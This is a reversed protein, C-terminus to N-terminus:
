LKPTIAIGKYHICNRDENIEFDTFYINKYDAILDHYLENSIEMEDLLYYNHETMQTIILDLKEIPSDM